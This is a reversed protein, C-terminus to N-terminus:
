ARRVWKRVTRLLALLPRRLLSRMRLAVPPKMPIAVSGVPDSTEFPPPGLTEQWYEPRQSDSRSVIVLTLDDDCKARVRDSSLFQGLAGDSSDSEHLWRFLGFFFPSHPARGVHSLAIPELGDTLVAIDDVQPACDTPLVIISLSDRWASSTMFVTENVYESPARGGLTWYHGNGGLVIAGDGIQATCVYMSTIAVVLLTCAFEDASANGALAYEAIFDHVATFAADMVQEDQEATVGLEHQHAALYETAKEVALTAGERARPASGAGDSVALVVADDLARVLFADDSPVGRM